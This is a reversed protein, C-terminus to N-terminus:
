KCGWSKTSEETQKLMSFTKKGTKPEVWLARSPSKLKKWQPKKQVKWNWCQWQRPSFSDRLKARTKKASECHKGLAARCIIGSYICTIYAYIYITLMTCTAVVFPWHVISLSALQSCLHCKFLKMSYNALVQCTGNFDRWNRPSRRLIETCHLCRLYHPQCRVKILAREILLEWNFLSIGNLERDGGWSTRGLVSLISDVLCCRLIFWFM